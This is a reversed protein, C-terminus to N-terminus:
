PSRRWCCRCSTSAGARSAKEGAALARALAHGAALGRHVLVGVLVADVPGPGAAVVRHLAAALAECRGLLWAVRSSCWSSAGTSCRRASARAWPRVAALAIGAPEGATTINSAPSGLDVPSPRTRFGSTARSRGIWRARPASGPTLALPLEGKEPRLQVPQGDFRVATVRAEPPLKIVHRGGQTSRYQFSLASNASRKGVDITYRVSDIALTTGEAGKPRTVHAVLKEGPRPIFRFMWNARTARERAHVAPFGEFDVNWQPNVLFSWVETRAADAPLSIKSRRAARWARSGNRAPRARAWAWWCSATM